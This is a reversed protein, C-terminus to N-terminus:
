IELRNLLTRVQDNLCCVKEKYAHLKHGIPSFAKQLPEDSEQVPPKPGLCHELRESLENVLISHEEIAQGLQGICRQIEPERQEMVQGAERAIGKLDRCTTTECM